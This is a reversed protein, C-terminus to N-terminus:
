WEGDGLNCLNDILRSTHAINKEEETVEERKRAQLKIFRAYQKTLLCVLQSQPRSHMTPSIPVIKAGLIQASPIDDFINAFEDTQNRELARDLAPAAEYSTLYEMGSNPKDMPNQYIRLTEVYNALAAYGCDASLLNLKKENNDSIVNYGSYTAVHKLTVDRESLKIEYVIM